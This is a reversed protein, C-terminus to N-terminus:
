HNTIRIQDDSELEQNRDEEEEENEIGKLEGIGGPSMLAILLSASRIATISRKPKRWGLCLRWGYNAIIRRAEKM